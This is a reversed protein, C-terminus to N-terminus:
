FIWKNADEGDSPIPKLKIKATRIQNRKTTKIQIKWIALSTLYREM